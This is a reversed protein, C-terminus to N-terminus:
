FIKASYHFTSFDTFENPNVAGSVTLKQWQQSANGFDPIVSGQYGIPYSILYWAVQHVGSYKTIGTYGV